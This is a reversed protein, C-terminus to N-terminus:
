DETAKQMIRPTGLFLCITLVRHIFPYICSPISDHTFSYMHSHYEDPPFGNIWIWPEIVSISTCLPHFPFVNHLYTIPPTIYIGLFLLTHKVTFFSLWWDWICFEYKPPFFPIIKMHSSIADIDDEHMEAQPIEFLMHWCIYSYNPLKGM